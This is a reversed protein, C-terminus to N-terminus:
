FGQELKELRARISGDYLDSGVKVRMGGILAPNRGFTLSVGEGYINKIRSAVDTQMDGPLIEASEVHAARREMDLKVMRHLGSLIEIYRRPKQALVLAVAQRVRAEELLGNIQCSRFLQRADHQARKSINM